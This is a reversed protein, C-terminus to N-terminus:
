PRDPLHAKMQVAGCVDEIAQVVSLPASLHIEHLTAPVVTHRSNGSLAALAAHNEAIGPTQELGRTLVVVPVRRMPNDPRNRSELLRALAARQGEASERVVTAPVTPPFSAILRRDLEVRRRYLDSPLRDFPPGTQPSRTPVPVNGSMPLTTALQEATLSSIAVARGQFMTFLRDETAPDVLVLGRVDGPYELQYLRVYLGGASHGVFVYPAAEGARDLLVHLDAVIRAPTEVDPRADSWGSGARDYSCVRRGRAVDPQVLAWDIAFASAGAEIVITPSGAGTCNIHLRRGGVDVLRGPAPGIDVPQAVSAGAVLVAGIALVFRRM